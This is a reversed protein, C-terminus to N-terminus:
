FQIGECHDGRYGDVCFCTYGNVGDSCSGGNQCPNSLCEDINEIVFFFM